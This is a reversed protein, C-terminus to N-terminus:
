FGWLEKMKQLFGTKNKEHEERAEALAVHKKRERKEKAFKYLQEIKEEWIGPLYAELEGAIEEYVKYGQHHVSLCHEDAKYKIEVPVGSTTGDFLWGIQFVLSETNAEPMDSYSSSTEELDGDPLTWVDDMPNSSYGIGGEESVIPQGMYKAITGLKGQVGMLNKKTAEITRAERIRKEQEGFSM